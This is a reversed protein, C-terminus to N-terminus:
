ILTRLILLLFTPKQQAKKKKENLHNIQEKKRKRKKKQKTKNKIQDSLLQILLPFEHYLNCNEVLGGLTLVLM